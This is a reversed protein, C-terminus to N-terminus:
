SAPASVASPERAEDLKDRYTELLNELRVRGIGTFPEQESLSSFVGKNEYAHLLDEAAKAMEGNHQRCTMLLDNERAFRAEADQRGRTQAQLQGRTDEHALREKELTAELEALKASLRKNEARLYGVSAALRGREGDVTALEGALADREAQAQQADASAKSAAQQADRAMQVSERVQLRLQRIQQEDAAWAPASAMQMLVMLTFVTRKM